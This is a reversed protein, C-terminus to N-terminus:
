VTVYKTAKTVQDIAEKKMIQKLNNWTRELNETNNAIARRFNPIKKINRTKKIDDFVKKVKGKAKNESVPKFISM